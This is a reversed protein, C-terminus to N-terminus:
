SSVEKTSLYILHNNNMGEVVQSGKRNIKIEEIKKKHAKIRSIFNIM